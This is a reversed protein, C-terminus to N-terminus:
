RRRVGRSRGRHPSRGESWRFEDVVSVAIKRFLAAPDSVFREAYHASYRRSAAELVAETWQCLLLDEYVARWPPLNREVVESALRQYWAPVAPLQPGDRVFGSSVSGAGVAPSATLLPDLPAPPAPLSLLPEDPRTFGGVVGSQEPGAPTESNLLVAPTELNLGGLGLGPFGLSSDGPVPHNISKYKYINIYIDILDGRYDHDYLLFAPPTEIRIVRGPTELSLGGGAVALCGGDPVDVVEEAVAQYLNLEPQLLGPRGAGVFRGDPPGGAGGDQPGSGHGRAPPPTETKILGGPTELNLGRDPTDEVPTEEDFPTESPADAGPPPAPGSGPEPGPACVPSSPPSGDAVGPVLRHHELVRRAPESLTSHGQEVLLRCVAVGSFVLMNGSYGRPSNVMDRRNLLGAQVLASVARAVNQYGKVNAVSGLAERSPAGSWGYRLIAMAVRQAAASVPMLATLMMRDGETASDRILVHDDTLLDSPVDDFLNPETSHALDPHVLQFGSQLDPSSHGPVRSDVETDHYYQSTV